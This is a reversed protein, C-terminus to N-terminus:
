PQYMRQRRDLEPISMVREDEPKQLQEWLYRARDRVTSPRAEYLIKDVLGPGKVAGPDTSLSAIYDDLAEQYRGQRDKLIGRNGYAAALVGRGTADDAPLTDTLYAILADFEAEADDLRGTQMMVLARGMLAGRHNPQAVLAADFAAMAGTFDGSALLQSGRRTEFDGPPPNLSDVLLKGGFWAIAAILSIILFRQAITANM